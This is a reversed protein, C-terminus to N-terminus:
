PWTKLAWSPSNKHWQRGHIQKYINEMHNPAPPPLAQQHRCGPAATPSIQPINSKIHPSQPPAARSGSSPTDPIHSHLSIPRVLLLATCLWYQLNRGLNRHTYCLYQILKFITISMRDIKKSELNCIRQCYQLYRLVKNCYLGISYQLDPRTVSRLLYLPRKFSAQTVTYKKTKDGPQPGIM